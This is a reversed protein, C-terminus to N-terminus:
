AATGRAAPEDGPTRAARPTLRTVRGLWPVLVTGVGGILLYRLFSAVPARKVEEPLLASSGLLAGFVLVLALASLAVRGAVPGSTDHRILEPGVAFAALGGLLLDSNATPALLHLGFPLVLGLLVAGPRGLTVERRQLWLAVGATALGFALGGAVDIPLHVGLYLRSLSVLAVVAVALSTFWGRRVYAAALAWFTASGQAHGSPFGSGLATEVAAQSRAVAPDIEFPRRTAFSMKLLQNLYFGALLTLALSRGRRADVGVFAVVLLAVYAQESGLQTIAFMLRDLAPSAAGQLAYVLDM